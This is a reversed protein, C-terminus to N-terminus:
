TCLRNCGGYGETDVIVKYEGKEMSSQIMTMVAFSGFFILPYILLPVLVLMIIAKRDRFVDLLEKRLLLKIVRSRM